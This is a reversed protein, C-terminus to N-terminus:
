AETADAFTEGVFWDIGNKRLRKLAEILAEAETVADGEAHHAVRGPRQFDALRVDAGIDRALDEIVVLDFSPGYGWVSFRGDLNLITKSMLALAERPDITKESSFVDRKTEESQGRWWAMTADSQTRFPQASISLPWHHSDCIELTPLHVVAAGISLVRASPRTDMTEIDIVFAWTPLATM